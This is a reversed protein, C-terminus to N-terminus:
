TFVLPTEYPLLWMRPMWTGPFGQPIHCIFVTISTVNGVKWLTNSKMKLVVTRGQISSIVDIVSFLLHPPPVTIYNLFHWKNFAKFAKQTLFALRQLNCVTLHWKCLIRLIVNYLHLVSVHNGPALPPSLPYSNCQHPSKIDQNIEVHSLFTM